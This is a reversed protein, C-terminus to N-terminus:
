KIDKFISVDWNEIYNNKVLPFFLVLSNDRSELTIFIDEMSVFTQCYLKFGMIFFLTEKFM